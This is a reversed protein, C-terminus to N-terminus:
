KSMEYDLVFQHQDADPVIKTGDCLKQLPPSYTMVSIRNEGPDFRYIRLYGERYDSLCEHVKNGHKGKSTTHLAQTRSQDGCCILFVNSHKSFCKDWLQQPTNGLKGHTKHCRM